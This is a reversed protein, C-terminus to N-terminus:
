VQRDADEFAVLLKSEVGRSFDAASMEKKNEAKLRECLYATGRGCCVRLGERGSSLIRGPGEDCAAGPLPRGKTLQVRLGGLSTFATPWPTYARVKRDIIEAPESWRIRGDEKKIKPAYTAAGHDQPLLPLSERRSLTESILRAGVEALRGELQGATEGDLIELEERLLIDGEDMKENLEFITVGTRKEGSLIAWAVPSAGRYNPLLSFHVNVTHWRPLYIISAPLIQGFAVVVAIDPRIDEFLELTRPDKRVKEPQHVLLGHKEAFLKVPGARLVRGRGAPKDPQTIVLEVRHGDRLIRDLSPIAAAPSGFFVVKM